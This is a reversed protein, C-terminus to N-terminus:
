AEKIPYLEGMTNKVAKKLATTIHEDNLKETNSRNHFPARTAQPIAWLIDWVFRVEIDNIRDDTKLSEFYQVCTEPTKTAIFDTVMTLLTQYTTPTM